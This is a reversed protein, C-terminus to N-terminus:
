VQSRVCIQMSFFSAVAYLVVDSRPLSEGISLVRGSRFHLDGSLESIGEIVVTLGRPKRDGGRHVRHCRRLSLCFVSRM